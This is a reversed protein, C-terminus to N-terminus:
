LFYFSRAATWIQSFPIKVDVDKCQSSGARHYYTHLTLTDSWTRTLPEKMSVVTECQIMGVRKCYVESVYYLSM